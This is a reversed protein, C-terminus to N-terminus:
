YNTADAQVLHWRKFDYLFDLSHNLVNMGFHCKHNSEVFGIEKLVKRLISHPNTWTTIEAAGQNKLETIASCFLMGLKGMDNLDCEFDVIDGYYCGAMNDFFLKTIAYEGSPITIKHYTYVPSQAFRWTRFGYSHRFQLIDPGCFHSDLLTSNDFVYQYFNM